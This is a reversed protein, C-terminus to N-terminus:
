FKLDPLNPYTNSPAIAQLEKRKKDYERIRENEQEAKLAFNAMTLLSARSLASITPARIDGAQYAQKALRLLTPYENIDIRFQVFTRSDKVYVKKPETPQPTSQASSFIPLDSM